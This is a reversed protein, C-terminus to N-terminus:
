VKQPHFIFYKKANKLKPKLFVWLRRTRSLSGCSPCLKDGKKLTIFKSMKFECVTCQFRNGIYFFSLLQRITSENKKILTKPILNKLLEYM